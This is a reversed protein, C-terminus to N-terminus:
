AGPAERMADSYVADMANKIAIDCVGEKKLKEAFAELISSNTERLKQWERVLHRQLHAARHKALTEHRTTLVVVEGFLFLLISSPHEPDVKASLFNEM